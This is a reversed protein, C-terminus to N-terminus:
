NRAGCSGRNRQFCSCTRGSGSRVCPGAFVAWYSTLSICARSGDCNARLYRGRSPPVRRDGAATVGRTLVRTVLCRISTWGGLGQGGDHSVQSPVRDPFPGGASAKTPFRSLANAIADDRGAILYAAAAFESAVERERIERTLRTLRSSGGAGDNAYAVAAADHIRVLELKRNVSSRWHCLAERFLWLARWDIGKRLAVKSWM